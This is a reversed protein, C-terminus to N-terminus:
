RRMATSGIVILKGVHHELVTEVTVRFPFTNATQVSPLQYKATCNSNSSPIDSIRAHRAELAEELDTRWTKKRYHQGDYFYEQRGFIDIKIVEDEM